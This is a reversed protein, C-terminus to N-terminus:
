PTGPQGCTSNTIQWFLGGAMYMTFSGRYAPATAIRGGAARYCFYTVEHQPRDANDVLPIRMSTPSMPGTRRPIAPMACMGSTDSVMLPTGGSFTHVVRGDIAIAVDFSSYNVVQYEMGDLTYAPWPESGPTFAMTSTLMGSTLMGAGDVGDCMAVVGPMRGAPAGSTYGVPMPAGIIPASPTVVAPSAGTGGSTAPTGALAADRMAVSRSEAAEARAEAASARAEARDLREVLSRMDVSGGCAALAFSTFMILVYLLKNM